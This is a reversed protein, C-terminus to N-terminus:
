VAWSAYQLLFGDPGATIVLIANANFLGVAVLALKGGDRGTLVKQIVSEVVSIVCANITRLGEGIIISFSSIYVVLVIM